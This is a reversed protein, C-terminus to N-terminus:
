YWRHILCNLGDSDLSSWRCGQKERGPKIARYMAHGTVIACVVLSLVHLSIVPVRITAVLPDDRLDVQSPNTPISIM